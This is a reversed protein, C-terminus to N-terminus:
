KFARQIIVVAEARTITNEPKFTGDPYGTIIGKSVCAMVADLYGTASINAEDTFGQTNAQENVIKLANAIIGASAARNIDKEIDDVTNTWALELAKNAAASYWKPGTSQDNEIKLARMMMTILEAKTVNRNPEIGKDSGVVIGDQVAKILADKAWHGELAPDVIVPKEETKEPEKIYKKEVIYNKENEKGEVINILRQPVYFKKNLYVAVEGNLDVKEGNVLAVSSNREISVTKGNASFEFSDKAKNYTGKETIDVFLNATLKDLDVGIIGALYPAIKTNDIRNVECEEYDKEFAKSVEPILKEDIGEPYLVNEPLYMFIGGNRGTHNGNGEWFLKNYVKGNSINSAAAAFNKSENRKGISLGGTDHDPLIVVMTDKRTKAYEIAVKCAADFSLYESVMQIANSNHGGLDIVSGEVMLFFGNENNDDLATIAAKTLEALNPTNADRYIDFYARPLKGFLKDGDKVTLLEDKTDIITYGLNQIYEDAFWEKGAYEEDTDALIVDIQQSLMQKAINDTDLRSEAHSSFAAPTANTWEFTAVLGTNKGLAQCAELINAHPMLDPTIGLVENTTKYGTSLATGGAASDTVASSASHTTEAGVLYKKIYMEGAEVQTANPFKETSFGGAQKVYDSLYFPAMGGGDPIMYIINKIGVSDEANAFVININAVVLVMALLISIIKKNKTFMNVRWFNDYSYYLM